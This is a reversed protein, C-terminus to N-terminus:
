LKGRTMEQVVGELIIESVKTMNRGEFSPMLFPRKAGRIGTIEHISGYPVKTGIWGENGSAGSQISNRLRGTRAVLPGPPPLPLPFGPRSERIFIGRAKNKAFFMAEILYKTIGKSFRKPLSEAYKKSKQSLSWSVRIM